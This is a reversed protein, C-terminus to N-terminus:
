YESPLLLIQDALYLKITTLPFDTYPINQTVVPENNSDSQCTLVASKDPAVTLQWLQFEALDQQDLLKSTQYSAIADLLWFAQGQTALYKVGDTYYINGLSHQYINDTGTFADLEAQTLAM